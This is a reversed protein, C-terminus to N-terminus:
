IEINKSLLNSYNDLEIKRREKETEVTEIIFLEESRLVFDTDITLLPSLALTRLAM